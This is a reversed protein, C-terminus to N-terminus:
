RKRLNKFATRRIKERGTRMLKNIRKKAESSSITGKKASKIISTGKTKVKKMQSKIKKRGVSTIDYSKYRKGETKTFLKKYPM